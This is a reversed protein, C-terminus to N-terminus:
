DGYFKLYHHVESQCRRAMQEVRDLATRHEPRQATRRIRELEALFTEMQMRNFVTDGYEDIFRWCQYSTDDFAPLLDNLPYRPDFYAEEVPEGSETELKVNLPMM